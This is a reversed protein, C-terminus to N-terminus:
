TGPRASRSNTATSPAGYVSALAGITNSITAPATGKAVLRDVLDQLHVRRVLYFPATGIEPYVRLRLAQDYSRITGPKFPDGGRAHVIGARADKLWQDCAERVTTKPKAEALTGARLAAMADTRWIRAATKDDFTKRIRRGTRKDFIHAQYSIKGDGRCREDIGIM